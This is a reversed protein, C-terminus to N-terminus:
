LGRLQVITSLAAFNEHMMGCKGQKWRARFEEKKLTPWDPDIVKADVMSRSSSGRGEHLQPQAREARVLRHRQHELRRGRRLRRLGLRFAHGPRGAPARHGRHLRLLRLHREQRQRGPGERHLGQRGDLFEDLTTPAKLGSSTWGTRASWWATSTRAARRSRAPAYM